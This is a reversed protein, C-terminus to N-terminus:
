SSSKNKKLFDKETKNLVKIKNKKNWFFYINLFNDHKLCYRRFFAKKQYLQHFFDNEKKNKKPRFILRGSEMTIWWHHDKWEFIKERVARPCIIIGRRGVRQIEKIFQFPNKSHEIVQRCIIFDFSKNKFPLKEGKAIVLPRDYRLSYESREKNKFLFRDCLIDSRRYPDHGSGIELVLDNKKINFKMKAM